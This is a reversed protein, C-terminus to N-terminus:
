FNPPSNVWVVRCRAAGAARYLHELSSSFFFSSGETVRYSKGNVVLELEGELVFGVEEGEHRFPGCWRGDDPLHVLLGELVRGPADPILSEALSGDGEEAEPRLLRPRDTPGYVVCNDDGPPELLAAVSVGLARCLRHLTTLSPVVHGNEVRSLLSESCGALDALAKLTLRRARRMTKLRLGVALSADREPDDQVLMAM